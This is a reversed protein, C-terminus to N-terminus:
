PTNLYFQKKLCNGALQPIAERSAADSVCTNSSFIVSEKIWIIHAVFCSANGCKVKFSSFFRDEVKFSSVSHFPASAQPIARAPSVFTGREEARQSLVRGM